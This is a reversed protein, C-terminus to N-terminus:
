VIWVVLVRNPVSCSWKMLSDISVIPRYKLSRRRLMKAPTASFAPLGVFNWCYDAKGTISQLPFDLLCMWQAGSQRVSALPNVTFLTKHSFSRADLPCFGRPIGNGAACLDAWPALMAIGLTQRFPEFGHSLLNGFRTQAQGARACAAIGSVQVSVWITKTLEM